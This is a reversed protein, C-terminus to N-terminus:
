EVLFPVLDSSSSSGHSVLTLEPENLGHDPDATPYDEKVKGSNEIHPLIDLFSVM